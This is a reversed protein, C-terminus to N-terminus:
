VKEKGCAGCGRGIRRTTPHLCSTETVIPQAGRIAGEFRDAWARLQRATALGPRGARKGETTPDIALLADAAPLRWSGAPPAQATTRRAVAAKVADQVPAGQKVAEAIEAAAQPADKKLVQAQRASVIERAKTGNPQRSDLASSEQVGSVRGNQAPPSVAIDDSAGEHGSTVYTEIERTVRAQDLLLYSNQKTMDFEHEVYVKWSDYGLALHDECEWAQLLLGWLTEAHHRIADARIRAENKTARRKTVQGM